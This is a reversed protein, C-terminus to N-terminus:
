LERTARYSDRLLKLMPRQCFEAALALKELPDNSETSPPKHGDKTLKKIVEKVLPAILVRGSGRIQKGAAVYADREWGELEGWFTASVGPPLYHLLTYGRQTPTLQKFSTNALMAERWRLGYIILSIPTILALVEWWEPRDFV